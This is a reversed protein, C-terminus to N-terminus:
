YSFATFHSLLACRNYGLSGPTVGNRVCAFELNAAADFLLLLVLLVEVLLLVLVRAEVLGVGGVGRGGVEEM